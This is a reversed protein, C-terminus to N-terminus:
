AAKRRSTAVVHGLEVTEVGRASVRDVFVYGAGSSRHDDEVRRRDVITETPFETLEQRESLRDDGQRQSTLQRARQFVARVNVDDVARRCADLARHVAQQAIGLVALTKFAVRAAVVLSPELGLLEDGTEHIM